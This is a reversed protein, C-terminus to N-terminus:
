RLKYELDEFTKKLGKVGKAKGKYLMQGEYEVKIKFMDRMNRNNM